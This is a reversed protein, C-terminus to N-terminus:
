GITGKCNTGVKSDRGLYLDGDLGFVLLVGTILLLM